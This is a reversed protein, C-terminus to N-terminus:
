KSAHDGISLWYDIAMCFFRSYHRSYPRRDNVAHIARKVNVVFENSLMMKLMEILRDSCSVISLCPYHLMGASIIINIGDWKIGFLSTTRSRSM